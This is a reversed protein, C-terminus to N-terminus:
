KAVKRICGNDMRQITIGRHTGATRQGGLNYSHIVVAGDSRVSSVGSEVSYFNKWGEAAKYAEISGEPVYLKCTKYSDDDLPGWNSECTPPVTALSYFETLNPWWGFANNGVTEVSAPLTVRTAQLAESFPDQMFAGQGIRKLKTFASLDLNLSTCNVFAGDGIDTLNPSHSVVVLSSCSDFCHAPIVTMQPNLIVKQLAFCDSCEYEHLRSVKSGFEIKKLTSCGYFLTRRFDDGEWTEVEFDRGVYVYELVENIQMFVSGCNFGNSSIKIPTDSDEIFVRELGSGGFCSEGLYEVSAPISIEKLNTCLEFALKNIVRITKPLRVSTIHCSEFAQKGISTVTYGNPAKEPIVIDGSYCHCCSMVSENGHNHWRFSSVLMATQNADNYRWYFDGDRELGDPFGNNEYTDIDWDQAFAGTAAAVFLSFLLLRKRM